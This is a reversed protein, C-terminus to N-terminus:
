VHMRKKYIFVTAAVMLGIGLFLAWNSLPIQVSLCSVVEPHGFSGPQQDYVWNFQEVNAITAASKKARNPDAITIVVGDDGSLFGGGLPDAQLDWILSPCFGELVLTPDNITFNIRFLPIWDTTSLYVSTGAQQLQVSGKVFDLPGLLNFPAGSGPGGHMVTPANLVDYGPAFNAFSYYELVDHDYFFRVNMGFLKLGPTNAMVEVNVGVRQTAFNYDAFKFRAKVVPLPAPNAWSSLGAFLVLCTAMLKIMTKGTLGSLHIGNISNPNPHIMINIKKINM